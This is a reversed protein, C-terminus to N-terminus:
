NEGSDSLIKKEMKRWKARRNQFWVQIRAESLGITAALNERIYIDPYRTEAFIHELQQLQISTFTTRIRRQKRRSHASAAAAAAASVSNVNSCNSPGAGGVSIQDGGNQAGCGSVLGLSNSTMINDLLSTDHSLNQGSLAATVAQHHQFAAVQQNTAMMYNELAIQENQATCTNEIESNHTAYPLFNNAFNNFNSLQNFNNLHAIAQAQAQVQVQSSSVQPIVSHQQNNNYVNSYELQKNGGINRSNVNVNDNAVAEVEIKIKNNNNNNNTTTGHSASTSASLSMIQNEM